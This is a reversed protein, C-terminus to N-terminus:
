SAVTNRVMEREDRDSSTTIALAMVAAVACLGGAVFFAADYGGFRDRVVGALFAVLGAGIQHSALVWGFRHPRRRRLAQPVTRRDAARHGGM